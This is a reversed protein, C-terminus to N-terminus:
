ESTLGAAKVVFEPARPEGAFFSKEKGATMAWRQLWSLGAPGIYTDPSDYAEDRLAEELAIFAYGRKSLMAALAEFYDANLLNAHLLLTQRIERGFLARSQQEYFEFKREMYPVYAAGVQQQLEKDGRESALVYAHAFIWESNDITVPAVTYGHETLFNEVEEKVALSTGTHLYPHRFYRPTMRKTALLPKTIEEGRLIDKKYAALEIRHLDPHSFSHNGLELGAELWMQLLAVRATDLREHEFLKAENVFGIAPVRQATISALLKATTQRWTKPNMRTLPLDDFTVAVARQPTASAQAFANPNMCFALCLTLVFATKM